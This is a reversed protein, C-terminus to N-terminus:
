KKTKAFNKLEIIIAVIWTIFSALGVVFFTPILKFYDEPVVDGAWIAFLVISSCLYMAPFFIRLSIKQINMYM